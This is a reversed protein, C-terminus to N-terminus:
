GYFLKGDVVNKCCVLLNSFKHLSANDKPKLESWKLATDMYAAAIKYENGYNIKLLARPEEYGRVSGHSSVIEGVIESAWCYVTGFL